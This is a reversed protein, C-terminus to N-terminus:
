HKKKSYCKFSCLKCYLQTEKNDLQEAVRNEDWKNASKTDSFQGSPSTCYVKGGVENNVSIAKEAVGKKAQKINRRM